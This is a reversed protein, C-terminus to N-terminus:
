SLGFRVKMAQATIGFVGNPAKLSWPIQGRCGYEICLAYDSDTYIYQTKFPDSVYGSSSGGGVSGESHVISKRYAGTDVPAARKAFGLGFQVIAEVEDTLLEETDIEFRRLDSSFSM